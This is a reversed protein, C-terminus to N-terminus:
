FLVKLPKEYDTDFVNDRNENLLNFVKIHKEYHEKNYANVGSGAIFKNEKDLVELYRYTYVYTKTKYGLAKIEKKFEKLTKM